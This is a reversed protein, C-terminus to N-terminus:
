DPHPVGQAEVNPFLQSVARCGPPARVVHTRCDGRSGAPEPGIGSTQLGARSLKRATKEAAGGQGLAESVAQAGHRRMWGPLPGLEAHGAPGYGTPVVANGDRGLKPVMRPGDLFFHIRIQELSHSNSYSGM